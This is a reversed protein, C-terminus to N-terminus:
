IAPKPISFWNIEWDLIRLGLDLILLGIDSDIVFSSARIFGNKTMRVEDNM